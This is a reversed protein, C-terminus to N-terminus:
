YRSLKTHYSHNLRHHVDPGLHPSRSVPSVRGRDLLDKRLGCCSTKLDRSERPSNQELRGSTTRSFDPFEGNRSARYRDSIGGKFKCDVFLFHLYNSSVNIQILKGYVAIPFLQDTCMRSTDEWKTSTLQPLQEKARVM